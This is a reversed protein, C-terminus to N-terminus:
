KSYDSPNKTNGDIFVFVQFPKFESNNENFGHTKVSNIIINNVAPSPPLLKETLDLICVVSALKSNGSSYALPQNSYKEIVSVRESLKREVKLEVIIGKYDIEVRGGAIHPEKSINEGINPNSTLYEILKDRFDNEKYTSVGKYIGNKLCYGQYNVVGNLITFFNKCDEANLQQVLSNNYLDFVKKDMMKFGTRFLMNNDDLVKTILEDYGIITPYLNEEINSFFPILKISIFDELSNQSYKFIINGKIEYESKSRNLKVDEINLEFIDTSTTSPIIKLLNGGLPIRNLKLIGSISYIEKSKLIQPNGWPTDKLYLELSVLYVNKADSNENEITFSPKEKKTKELYHIFPMKIQRYTEILSLINKKDFNEILEVSNKISLIQEKLMPLYNFSDMEILAINVKSANLKENNGIGEIIQSCWEMLLLMGKNLLKFDSFMNEQKTNLSITELKEYGNLIAENESIVKNIDKFKFHSLLQIHKIILEEQILIIENESVEKSVLNTNLDENELFISSLRSFEDITKFIYDISNTKTFKNEIFNVLELIEKHLNFYSFIVLTFNLDSFYLELNHLCREKIKEKMLDVYLVLDDLAISLIGRYLIGRDSNIFPEFKNPTSKYIFNLSAGLWIKNYNSNEEKFRTLEKISELSSYYESTNCLEILYKEILIKETKTFHNPNIEKSISIVQKLLKKCFDIDREQEKFSVELLSILYFLLSNRQSDNLVDYLNYTLEIATKHIIIYPNKFLELLKILEDNELEKKNRLIQKFCLIAYKKILNDKDEIFIELLSFITQPIIHFNNSLLNELFRLAQVRLPINKFDLLWNHLDPLIDTLIISDKIGDRIVEIFFLKLQISNKDGENINRIIKIIEHYLKDQNNRLLNKLINKLKYIESELKTEELMIEHINKGILPNFTVTKKDLDEKYWEFNSKEIVSNSLVGIFSDFDELLVKPKDRSLTEFIEIAKEKLEKSNKNSCIKFLQSTIKQRYTKHSKKSSNDIFLKYFNLVEVKGGITLKKFEEDLIDFVDKAYLKTIEVLTKSIIYDASKPYDTDKLDLSLIIDKLFPIIISNNISFLQNLILVANARVNSDSNKLTKRFLTYFEKDNSNFLSEFFSIISPSHNEFHEYRDFSSLDYKEILYPLINLIQEETLSDYPLVKLLIDVEREIEIYSIVREIFYNSPITTTKQIVNFIANVLNEKISEDKLFISLYDISLQNFFEPSLESAEHIEHSKKVMDIGEEKLSILLKLISLETTKHSHNPNSLIKNLKEELQNTIELEKNKQEEEKQKRKEHKNLTKRGFNNPIIEKHFKCNPCNEIIFDHSIWELNMASDGRFQTCSISNMTPLGMQGIMGGYSSEIKINSCWNKIQPVLSKSKRCLNISSQLENENKDIRSM